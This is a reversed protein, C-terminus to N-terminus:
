ANQVGAARGSPCATMGRRKRYSDSRGQLTINMRPNSVISVGAEAILPLLKSVYYNDMSHM